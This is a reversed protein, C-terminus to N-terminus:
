VNGNEMAADFDFEPNNQMTRIMDKLREVEARSAALTARLTDIEEHFDDIVQRHIAYAHHLEGIVREHDTFRVYDGDHLPSIRTHFLDTYDLDWRTVAKTDTTM